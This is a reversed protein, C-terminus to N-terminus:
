NPENKEACAKLLQKLKEPDLVGNTRAGSGVHIQAVGTRDIIDGANDPTIGSGALVMANHHTKGATVMQAIVWAGELATLQGGSTLVTDVEPYNLLELYVALPDSAVDIARHFTLALHGKAAIVQELLPIDLQGQPTLAGFVIGYAETHDRLYSLEAMIQAVDHTDYIFSHGHPRLMVCVPIDVAACVQLSLELAPSLGGLAFDHILELRDVGCKQALLAEERNTVIVELKM